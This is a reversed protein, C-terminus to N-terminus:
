KTNFIIDHFINTKGNIYNYIPTNKEDLEQYIEDKVESYVYGTIDKNIEQIKKVFKDILFINKKQINTIFICKDKTMYYETMVVFNKNKLLFDLTKNMELAASELVMIVFILTLFSLKENDAQKMYDGLYIRSKNHLTNHLEKLFQLIDKKTIYIFVFEPFLSSKNEALNIIKKLDM